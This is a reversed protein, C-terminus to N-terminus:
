HIVQHYSIFCIDDIFSLVNEKTLNNFQKINKDRTLVDEFETVLTNSVAM